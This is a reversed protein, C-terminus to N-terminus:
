NQVPSYNQLFNSINATMLLYTANKENGIKPINETNPNKFSNYKSQEAAYYAHCPCGTRPSVKQNLPWRFSLPKCGNNITNSNM